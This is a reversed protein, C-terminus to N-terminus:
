FCGHMVCYRIGSRTNGRMHLLAANGVVVLVENTTKSVLLMENAENVYYGATSVVLKESRSPAADEVHIVARWPAVKVGRDM